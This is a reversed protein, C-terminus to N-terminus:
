SSTIDYEVLMFGEGATSGAPTVTLRVVGENAAGVEKVENDEYQNTLKLNSDGTQWITLPTGGNVVAGVTPNSGNFATTVVVAVRTVKAGDPVVSTSDVTTDTYDFPIEIIHEVGLDPAVGKLIWSGGELVYLCNANFSITGSIASRTTLGTVVEDPMLLLSTGDDYVVQGATYSGGTTHCFGFENTNTGPAPASAGDFSFYIDAIRGQLDVLAPVDNITNTSRIAAVRLADFDADDKDRIEFAGAADDKIQSGEGKLFQFLNGTIGRLKEYVGM